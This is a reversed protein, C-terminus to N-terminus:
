ESLGRALRAVTDADFNGSIELHHGNVLSIKILSPADPCERAAEVTPLNATVEVPLFNLAEPENGETSCYRPDRVWKFILNANVDYRRAVQSVSVGPVKTQAIIRCKEEASWKRRKRREAM